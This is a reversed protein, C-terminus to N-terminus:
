GPRSAMTSKETTTPARNTPLRAARATAGRTRCTKRFTVARRSTRMTRRCGTALSARDALRNNYDSMDLTHQVLGKFHDHQADAASKLRGSTAPHPLTPDIPQPPDDPYDSQLNAM